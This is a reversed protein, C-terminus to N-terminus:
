RREFRNPNFIRLDMGCAGLHILEALAVSSAAALSVGMMAHGASVSLNPACSLRGIYPLGDPSMPRLGARVVPPPPLAHSLHFYDSISSQIGLLRAHKVKLDAAGIEMTGAIRLRDGLPTVAVRAESLLAPVGIGPNPIDFSYGKGAILPLKVGLPHLLRASWVGAAVVYEDACFSGASTSVSRVGGERLEISRAMMGRHLEGGGETFNRELAAMLEAPDLHGDMPYWVGGRARYHSPPDLEGLQLPNMVVPELGIRRALEATDREHREAHSTRYLVVIGKTHVAVGLSKQSEIYSRRSSLHLNVLPEAAAKVNATNASRLFGLLWRIDSLNRPLAISFPSKASLMWRFGSAVAGPAAIPIFHSPVIMGANVYSCGDRATERELVTVKWGRRQLELATSLGIVGGGVVM